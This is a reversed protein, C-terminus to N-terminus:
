CKLYMKIQLHDAQILLPLQGQEVRLLLGLDLPHAPMKHTLLGGVLTVPALVVVLGAVSEGPDGAERVALYLVHSFTSWCELVM